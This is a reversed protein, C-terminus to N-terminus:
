FNELTEEEKEDESSLDYNLEFYSVRKLAEDENEKSHKKKKNAEPKQKVDYDLDSDSKDESEMFKRKKNNEPSKNMYKRVEGRKKIPEKLEM